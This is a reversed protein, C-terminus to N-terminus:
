VLQVAGLDVFVRNLVPVTKQHAVGGGGGGFVCSVHLSVLSVHLSVTWGTAPQLSQPRVGAHAAIKQDPGDDFIQM